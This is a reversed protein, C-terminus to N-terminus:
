TATCVYFNIPTQNWKKQHWLLRLQVANQSWPNKTGPANAESPKPGVHKPGVHDDKAVRVNREVPNESWQNKIWPATKPEVTKQDLQRNAGWRKQERPKPKAPAQRLLDKYDSSSCKAKNNKIHNASSANYQKDYEQSDLNIINVNWNRKGKM